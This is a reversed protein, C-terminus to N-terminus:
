LYESQESLNHPNCSSCSARKSSGQNQQPEAPDQEGTEAAPEAPGVHVGSSDTDAAAGRPGSGGLSQEQRGVTSCKGAPVSVLIDKVPMLLM